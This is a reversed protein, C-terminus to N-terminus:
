RRALLVGLAVAGVLFYTPHSRYWTRWQTLRRSKEELAVSSNILKDRAAKLARQLELIENEDKTAM